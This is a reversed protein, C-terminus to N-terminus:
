LNLQFSLAGTGVVVGANKGSESIPILDASNGGVGKKADFLMGLTVNNSGVSFIVTENLQTKVKNLNSSDTFGAANTANANMLSVLTNMQTDTLNNYVIDADSSDIDMIISIYMREPLISLREGIASQMNASLTLLLYDKGLPLRGSLSNRLEGISNDSKGVLASQSLQLANADSSNAMGLSSKLTNIDIKSTINGDGIVGNVVGTSALVNYASAQSTNITTTINNPADKYGKLELGAFLAELTDKLGQATITNASNSANVKESAIEYIGDMVMVGEGNDVKFTLNMNDTLPKMSRKVSDSCSKNAEQLNSGAQASDSPNIKNRVSDIATAENQSLDNFVISTCIDESKMKVINTKVIMAIDQPLLSAYKSDSTKIKSKYVIAMERDSVIYLGLMQTDEYGQATITVSNELFNLLEGQEIEPRLNQLTKKRDAAYDSSLYDSTLKSGDIATSYNEVKLGIDALVADLNKADLKNSESLAYKENIENVANDADKKNSTNLSLSVSDIVVKSPMNNIKCIANRFDIESPKDTAASEIRADEGYISNLAIQYVTQDLMFGNNDVFTVTFVNNHIRDKFGIETVNGEEDKKGNLKVEIDAIISEISTKKAPTPEPQPEVPEETDPNPNEADPNETDPNTPTTKAKANVRDILMLLLQLDQILDKDREGIEKDYILANVDMKFVQMDTRNSDVVRGLDIKISIYMNEPLLSTANANNIAGKGKIVIDLCEGYNNAFVIQADRMFTITKAFDVQTDILYATEECSFIPNFKDKIEQLMQERLIEDDGIGSMDTVNFRSKLGRIVKGDAGQIDDLRIRSMDFNDGGIETMTELLNNNPPRSAEVLSAKYSDSIFYKEYLQEIFGDLNDTPTFNDNEEDYVYTYLHKLMNWLEKPTFYHENEQLEGNVISTGSIVEYLSPLYAKDRDFEIEYGIQEKVKALGQKIGSDVQTCIYEYSLSNVDMNFTTALATLTQLHKESNEAGVQNISVSTDFSNDLSLTATAFISQPILQKILQAMTENGSVGLMQAVDVEIDIKLEDLGDSSMNVIKAKINGLMEQGNVYSTLMHSFAQYSSAVKVEKEVYNNSYEISKLNINNIVDERQAFNLVDSITNGESIKGDSNDIGYKKSLESVFTKTDREKIESTYVDYGLSEATPLKVDR